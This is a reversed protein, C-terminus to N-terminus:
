EEKRKLPGETGKAVIVAVDHCFVGGDVGGRMLQLGHLRQHGSHLAGEFVDRIPQILALHVSSRRVARLLRRGAILGAIFRLIGRVAPTQKEKLVSLGAATAHEAAHHPDSEHGFAEQDFSVHVQLQHKENHENSVQCFSVSSLYSTVLEKGSAAM